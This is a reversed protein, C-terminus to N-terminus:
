VIRIELCLRYGLNREAKIVDGEIGIQHFKKRLRSLRMQLGETSMDGNEPTFLSLIQWKELLRDNAIALASLIRTEALSLHIPHLAGSLLLQKTDLFLVNNSMADRRIRSRLVAILEGPDVPKPLFVDAGANYGAIRRDIQGFATTIIINAKPSTARIRRVVSFGDEGPLKLDVIFADASHTGLTDDFDEACELPIISFGESELLSTLAMRLNDHDEILVIAMASKCLWQAHPVNDFKRDCTKKVVWRFGVAGVGCTEVM